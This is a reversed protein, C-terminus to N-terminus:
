FFQILFFFSKNSYYNIHKSDHRHFHLLLLLKVPCLPPWPRMQSEFLLFDILKRKQSLLEKYLSFSVWIVVKLCARILLSFSFQWYFHQVFWNVQLVVRIHISSVSINLKSIKLHKRLVLCNFQLACVSENREILLNILCSIESNLCSLSSRLYIYVFSNLYFFFPCSLMGHLLNLYVKFCKSLLSRIINVKIVSLLM